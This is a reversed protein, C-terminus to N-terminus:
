SWELLKNVDLIIINKDVIDISKEAKFQNLVRTLTERPVGVLEGLFKHPTKLTILIGNETKQGYNKTLLFLQAAIRGQVNKFSLLDIERNANILKESLAKIIYLSIKPNEDILDNLDKKFLMLLETDSLAAASATRPLATMVSIEGFFDGDKLLAFVKRKNKFEHYIEVTGSIIIFMEQGLENESFIIENASYRKKIFQKYLLNLYNDPLDKFIETKRLIHKAQTIM